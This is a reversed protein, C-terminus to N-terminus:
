VGGTVRPPQQPQLRASDADRQLLLLKVVVRQGALERSM